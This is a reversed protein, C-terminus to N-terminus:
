DLGTIVASYPARTVRVDGFRRLTGLLFVLCYASQVRGAERKPADLERLRKSRSRVYVYAM